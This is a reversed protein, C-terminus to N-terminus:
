LAPALSRLRVTSEFIRRLYGDGAVVVSGQGITYQRHDQLGPVPRHSRLLLQVRLSVAASLESASPRWRYVNAFGDGDTDVGVGIQLQEVGEVLCKASMRGGGLTEACLTPIGDGPLRAYARLFLVRSAGQWFSVGQPEGVLRSLATPQWQEWQAAGDPERRLYWRLAGSSSLDQAAQGGSYSARAATRKIALLDSGRVVSAADICDLHRGSQSLPPAAEDAFNDVMDLPTNPDLAWPEAGCDLAIAPVTLSHVPAVGGFFGAMAGERAILRVAYRGNEMVEALAAGLLAQRYSALYATLLASVLSLGLLM